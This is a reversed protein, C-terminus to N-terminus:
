TGKQFSVTPLKQPEVRRGGMGGHNLLMADHEKGLPTSNRFQAAPLILDGGDDENNFCGEFTGRRERTSSSTNSCAHRASPVANSSGPRQV